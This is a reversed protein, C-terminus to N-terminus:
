ATIAERVKFEKIIQNREVSTLIGAFPSSQRMRVAREDTAVLLKMLRNVPGNIEKQWELLVPQVRASCTKMWRHLNDQAKTLLLPNARIKEAILRDFALSREDILSHAKMDHAPASDVMTLLTCISRSADRSMRAM